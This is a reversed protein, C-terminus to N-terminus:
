FPWFEISNQGNQTCFTLALCTKNDFYYFLPELFIVTFYYLWVGALFPNQFLELFSKRVAEHFHTTFILQSREDFGEQWSLKILSLLM